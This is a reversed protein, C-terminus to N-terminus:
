VLVLSEPGKGAQLYAISLRSTKISRQEIGPLLLKESMFYGEPAMLAARVVILLRCVRYCSGDRIRAGKEVAYRGSWWLPHDSRSTTTTCGDEGFAIRKGRTAVM